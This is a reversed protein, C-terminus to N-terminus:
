PKRITAPAEYQDKITLPRKVLDALQQAQYELPDDGQEYVYRIGKVTVVGVEFPRPQANKVYEVASVDKFYVRDAETRDAYRTTFVISQTEQDLSIKYTKNQNYIYGYAMASVLATGVALFLLTFLPSKKRPVTLNFDHFCHKCLNAVSPVEANCNPCYKTNM